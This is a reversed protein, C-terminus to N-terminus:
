KKRRMTQEPDIINRIFGQQHLIRVKDDFLYYLRTDEQLRKHVGEQYYQMIWVGVLGGIVLPAMSVFFNTNMVFINGLFAIIMFSGMAVVTYILKTTGKEFDDKSNKYSDRKYVTENYNSILEEDSMRYPDTQFTTTIHIDRGASSNSINNVVKNHLEYFNQILSTNAQLADIVDERSLVEKGIMRKISTKLVDYAANGLIADALQYLDM